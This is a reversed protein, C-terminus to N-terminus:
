RRRGNIRERAVTPCLPENSGNCDPCNHGRPRKALNAIDALIGQRRERPAVEAEALTAVPDDVLSRNEFISVAIKMLVNM